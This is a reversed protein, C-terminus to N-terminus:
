VLPRRPSPFSNMLSSKGMILRRSHGLPSSGDLGLVKFLAEMILTWLNAVGPSSM